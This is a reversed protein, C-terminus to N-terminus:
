AAGNGHALLSVLTVKYVGEGQGQSASAVVPSQLRYLNPEKVRGRRVLVILGVKQLLVRARYIQRRGIGLLGASIMGDPVIAFIKGPQHGHNAIVVSYLAYADAGKALPLLMDLVLRNIQVVSNRGAWLRNETRLKWAWEAVKIIESDPVTAADDFEIDRMAALDGIL